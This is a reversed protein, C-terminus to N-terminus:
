LPDVDFYITLAGYRKEKMMTDRISRLYQKALKYDIGNELKLMIKRIHLTKVRAVTPKDPGLVRNGFIERIRSGLEMSASEVIDNNRHKIYIYILHFFPPYHFATREELQSKYFATYSNNVVQQIVPLEPKKTQLIVLGQKGKRGARGSVQAMMTFAHEYARFDPYNLMNDADLIGVVSVHDFDLGKSVMQTGILLNTKGASFDNILREYANKTRTTDLDMRAIRADPFVEMIEDEIKETGYGRGKIDKSECNPCQEPVRETYGCYHCTLVNMSKHYTLSVDCNPCHPVWGCTRCEIMPAFGRRNQFLIAQEGRQLADRVAAILRPSFPGSMLKRRRLDKIDVVEITPLQIDKYRQSLTVLGYKELQANRYSEISPTATGLLTKAGYMQALVIAISRAHYRPAPDQQKFSNEHEEDIIVLGLRQFPLFVASRAGLIVEYPENSLQKQWIEVREEDNYRSHYIGLKNGFVCRLRNTIQVTLAIEPLLYLVQKHEQLAKFILHIYIETKGSSTVGHLLTVNHAMMQLLIKDYAITQADNLAHIANPQLKDYGNNLRSVEKRYTQLIGKEILSNIIALSCHTTNRLEDKSVARLQNHQKNDTQTVDTSVLEPVNAIGSLELYSMLVKQQKTARALGDLAIHLEQEGRFQKGLCIYVETHPKYTDEGKLGSPLAAKYVDGIPSMYYNAIWHWLQLQQPLLVPGDDLIALIAKYEIGDNDDNNNPHDTPYTDCIGIYTKTKGFPVLLRVCPVVKDLLADPVVYTFTGELPLPLIVEVYRM